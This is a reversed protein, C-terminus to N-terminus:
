LFRRIFTSSCHRNARLLDSSRVVNWSLIISSKGQWFSITQRSSFPSPLDSRFLLTTVDRSCPSYIFSSEANNNKKRGQCKQVRESFSNWHHWLQSCFNTWRRIQLMCLGLFKYILIFIPSLYFFWILGPWCWCPNFTFRKEQRLWLSHLMTLVSPKNEKGKLCATTKEPQHDTVSFRLFPFERASKEEQTRARLENVALRDYM